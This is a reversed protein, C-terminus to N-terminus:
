LKVFVVPTLMSNAFQDAGGFGQVPPVATLLANAAAGQNIVAELEVFFCDVALWLTKM